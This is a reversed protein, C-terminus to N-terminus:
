EIKGSLVVEQPSDAANDYIFVSKYFDGQEDATLRVKVEARSGMRMVGMDVEHRNLSVSTSAPRYDDIGMLEFFMDRVDPVLIPNGVALVRNQVDLLFTHLAMDSHFHNLRNLEDDMDFCVPLDFRDRRTIFGLEEWDSANMFIVVPVTGGTLSDLRHIYRKWVSLHLKCSMCGVSDVYSVIKYPADRFSFDVTDRGQITFVPNEPFVIERGEWASVVSALSATKDGTCSAFLSILAAFYLLRNM